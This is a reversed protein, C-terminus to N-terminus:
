GNDRTPPFGKHFFATKVDRPHNETRLTRPSTNCNSSPNEIQQGWGVCGTLTVSVLNKFYFLTYYFQAEKHFNNYLVFTSMLKVNSM